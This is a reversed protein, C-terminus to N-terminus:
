TNSREFFKAIQAMLADIEVKTNFRHLSIRLREQGSPVTPSLIAKVAFGNQQLLAALSKAKKNGPIILGQIPTQSKLWYCNHIPFSNCKKQFYSILATLDQRATNAHKMREYASKIGIITQPAPGTSYIFPRCYNVLYQSLEASGLIAAGHLGMAKGYTYVGAFIKGGLGAEDIMGRGDKGYLGIAHAEDVILAANYKECLSYITNLPAIDGDMSYVSEIVVFLTGKAMTSATKLKEELDGVDNHAFRLRQAYSLRAGDILSAHILQDCIFIDDKTGIASLLGLNADYGSNFLLASQFGHFKAIDREVTEITHNHGSILRSGTAGTKINRDESPTADPYLPTQALGLYDNSCFDVGDFIKLSRMNGDVRRTELRDLISQQASKPM